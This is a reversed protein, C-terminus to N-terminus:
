WESFPKELPNKELIKAFAQKQHNPHKALLKAFMRKQFNSDKFLHHHLYKQGMHRVRQGCGCACFPLEKQLLDLYEQKTLRGLGPVYVINSM